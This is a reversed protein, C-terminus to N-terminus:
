KKILWEACARDSTLERCYKDFKDKWKADVKKENAMEIILIKTKTKDTISHNNKLIFKELEEILNIRDEASMIAWDYILKTADDVPIVGDGEEINNTNISKTIQNEIEKRESDQRLPNKLKEIVLSIHSNDKLIINENFNQFNNFNLNIINVINNSLDTDFKKLLELSENYKEKFAKYPLSTSGCQDKALVGYLYNSLASTYFKTTKFEKVKSQFKNIVDIHLKTNGVVQFFLNDVKELEIKNPIKFDFTYEAEETTKNKQHKILLIKHIGYSINSLAAKLDKETQYNNNLSYSDASQIEISEENIVRFIEILSKDDQKIGNLFIKPQEAPHNKMIHQWRQEKNEFKVQCLDCVFYTQSQKYPIYPTKGRDRRTTVIGSSIQIQPNDNIM